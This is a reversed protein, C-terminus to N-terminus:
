PLLRRSRTGHRTQPRSQRVAADGLARCDKLDAGAGPTGPVGDGGGQGFGGHCSSIIRPGCAVLIPAGGGGGAGGSPGAGAGGGTATAAVARRASRAPAPAGNHPQGAGGAGGGLDVNCGQASASGGCKGDAGSAGTASEAGTAGAGADGGTATVGTLALSSGGIARIAYSSAGDTLDAGLVTLLQLEVGVAGDAFV